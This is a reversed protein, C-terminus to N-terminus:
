LVEHPPAPPVADVPLREVGSKGSDQDLEAVVPGSDRHFHEVQAGLSLVLLGHAIRLSEDALDPALRPAAAIGGSATEVIRSLMAGVKPHGLLLTATTHRRRLRM